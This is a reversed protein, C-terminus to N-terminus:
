LDSNGATQKTQKESCCSMLTKGRSAINETLAKRVNLSLKIKLTKWRLHGDSCWCNGDDGRRGWSSYNNLNTQDWFQRQFLVCYHRRIWKWLWASPQEPKIETSSRYFLFSAWTLSQQLFSFWILIFTKILLKQLREKVTNVISSCAMNHILM